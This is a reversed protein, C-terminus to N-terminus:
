FYVTSIEREEESYFARTTSTLCSQPGRGTIPVNKAIIRTGRGMAHQLAVPVIEPSETSLLVHPLNNWDEEFYKWNVAPNGTKINLPEPPPLTFHSRPQPETAIVNEPQPVNADVM